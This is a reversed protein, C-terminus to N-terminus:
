GGSLRMWALFALNSLTVAGVYGGVLWAALILADRLGRGRKKRFRRIARIWVFFICAFQITGLVPDFLGYPVVLLTAVAAANSMGGTAAALPSPPLAM